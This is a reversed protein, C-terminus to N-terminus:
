ELPELERRRMMAVFAIVMGVAGVILVTRLGRHRHQKRHVSPLHVSPLHASPLHVAPLHVSPVHMSHAPAAIRAGLAKSADLVADIMVPVNTDDLISTNM